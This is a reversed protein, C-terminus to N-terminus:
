KRSPLFDAVEPVDSLKSRALHPMYAVDYVYKLIHTRTKWQALAEDLEMQGKFVLMNIIKPDVNNASHKRFERSINKRVMAPDEDIAYQAMLYPVEKQVHRYLRLVKERPTATGITNRALVALNASLKPASM